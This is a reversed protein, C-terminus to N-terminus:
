LVAALSVRSGAQPFLLAQGLLRQGVRHPNVDRL